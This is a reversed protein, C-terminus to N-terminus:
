LPAGPEIVTERDIEWKRLIRRVGDEEDAVFQVVVAPDYTYLGIGAKYTSRVM